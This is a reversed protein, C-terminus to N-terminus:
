DQPERIFENGQRRYYMRKASGLIEGRDVMGHTVHLVISVDGYGSVEIIREVQKQVDYLHPYEQRLYQLFNESNIFDKNM